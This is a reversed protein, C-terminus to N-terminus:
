VYRAIASANLWWNATPAAKLPLRTARNQHDARYRMTAMLVDPYTTLLTATESVPNTHATVAYGWIIALAHGSILGIVYRGGMAHWRALRDAGVGREIPRIRAMLLVLVVVAYGALLGLIEGAGTLWGGFGALSLTSHWWLALVAAAGAAIAALLARPGVATAM